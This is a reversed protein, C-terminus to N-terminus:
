VHCPRLTTAARGAGTQNAINEIEILSFLCPEIDDRSTGVRAAHREILVLIKHSVHVPSGIALEGGIALGEMDQGSGRRRIFCTGAALGRIWICVPREEAKWGPLTSVRKDIA